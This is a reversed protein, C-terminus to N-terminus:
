RSINVLYVSYISTANMNLRRTYFDRESIKLEQNNKNWTGLQSRLIKVRWISPHYIEEISGDSNKLHIFQCNYPIYIDNSTILSEPFDNLALWTYKSVKYENDLQFKFLSVHYM